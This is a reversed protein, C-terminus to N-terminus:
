ITKHQEPWWAPSCASIIRLNDGQFFYKQKPLVLISDGKKLKYEKGEVIIKGEGDIVFVIEKVKKNVVRGTDPYRGNILIEAINIDKDGTPYEFAICKESNKHEVRNEKRILVM